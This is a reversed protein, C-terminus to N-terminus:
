HAHLFAMVMRILLVGLRGYTDPDKLVAAFMFIGAVLAILPLLVQVVIVKLAVTLRQMMLRERPALSALSGLNEIAGCSLAM